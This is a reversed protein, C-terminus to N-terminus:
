AADVTARGVAIGNRENGAPMRFGGGWSAERVPMATAQGGCANLGDGRRGRFVFVHGSFPDEHLQTQVIAALGDFGRRMDTVGAAIWVKTGTPAGIMARAGAHAGGRSGDAHGRRRAAAHACRTDRDRRVLYVKRSRPRGDARVDIVDAQM